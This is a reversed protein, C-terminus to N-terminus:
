KIRKTLNASTDPATGITTLTVGYGFDTAGPSVYGVTYIYSGDSAAGWLEGVGETSVVTNASQAVGGDNYKVILDHLGDSSESQVTVGNGFDYLSDSNIYGMAYVGDSNVFLRNFSSTGSAVETSKAWQATLAKNYKVVLTNSNDAYAGSVTVDNGFGFEDSGVIYGSVYVQHVDSSTEVLSIGMYMSDASATSVNNVALVGDGDSDFAIIVGSEGDYLTSIFDYNLDFVGDGKIKGAVYVEDAGAAVGYFYSDDDAANYSRANQGSGETDFVVLLANTGGAYPTTTTALDGFSLDGSGSVEGVAYVFTGNSSVSYFHSAGAAEITSHSWLVNGDTDYKVIVANSGDNKGAVTGDGFGYNGTGTIWGVAYIGTDDGSVGIFISLASGLVTSKAWLAKGDLDYKVILANSNLLASGSVTVGNGFNYTNPGYIYGVAYFNDGVRVIDYFKSDDDGGSPNWTAFPSLSPCAMTYTATLVDSNRMGSKTALAKVVGGDCLIPLATSYVDSDTTPASGDTTYYITAGDTATSLTINKNTSYTGASPSAVITSVTSYDIIYTGTMVESDTMGDKVAFAKITVNSGDGTIGIASSYVTSDRDPTTGDITYYITVGETACALTVSQDASFTGSAPTATVAAIQSYDIIYTGSAVASDSLGNKIAIAKIVTTTGDGSVAIPTSYLTSSATPATGDTTYYISAGETTTALIVAQDSSFTGEAPSMTPTAVTSSSTTLVSDSSSGSSGGCAVLFPLSFLVIGVVLSVKKTM